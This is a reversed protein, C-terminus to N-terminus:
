AHKDNHVLYWMIFFYYATVGAIRAFAYLLGTLPSPLFVHLADFVVFLAIVSTFMVGQKMSIGAQGLRYRMSRVLRVAVVVIAIIILFRAPLLYPIDYAGLLEALIWVAGLGTIIFLQYFAEKEILAEVGARGLRAAYEVVMVGVLVILVVHTVSESALIIPQAFLM